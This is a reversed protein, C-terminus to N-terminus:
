NLNLGLPFPLDGSMRDQETFEHRNTTQHFAPNFLRALSSDLRVVIIANGFRGGGDDRPINTKQATINTAKIPTSIKRLRAPAWFGFSATGWDVEIVVGDDM